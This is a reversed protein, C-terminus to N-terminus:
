PKYDRTKYFFYIPAGILVLFLGLATNLIAPKGEAM